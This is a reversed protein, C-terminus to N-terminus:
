LAGGKEVAREARELKKYKEIDHVYEMFAASIPVAILAGLIGALKAGIVLAVIVVIPSIGVIKKVVLPYFLHNEFQHIILYLGVVLFGIGAGQDAFALIIAPVASVIPGFVPIIELVGAFIALLLAHPIGVVTLVLYVLLGVIIGLLVQGQLWLGIKRRSRKWLDIIYDYHRVPTVIRLFDDVGDEQAALYFSLVLILILGLAGGFLTSVTQVIGSSSGVLFDQLGRILDSVSVTHAALSSGDAASGISQIPSWLTELSITKPIASLFNVADSLILPLLFVVFGAIIAALVLYIIIVSVVRHLHFWVRMRRVVPEISSAIVVAALIVLVVDSM